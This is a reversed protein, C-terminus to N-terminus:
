KIEMIKYKMIGAPTKVEVVTGVPSGFIARGV